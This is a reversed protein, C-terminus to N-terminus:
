SWTRSCRCSLPRERPPGAARPSRPRRCAPWRPSTGSRDSCPAGSVRPKVGGGSAARALGRWGHAPHDGRAVVSLGTVYLIECAGNGTDGRTLSTGRTFIPQGDKTVTYDVLLGTLRIQDGVRIAGIQRAIARDASILHNNSAKDAKFPPSLAGSWGYSCSFEGDLVEDKGPGRRPRPQVACRGPAALRGVRRHRLEGEAHAHVRLGQHDHHLPRERDGGAGAGDGQGGPRDPRGRALGCRAGDSLDGRRRVRPARDDPM